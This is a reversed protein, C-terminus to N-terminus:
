AWAREELSRSLHGYYTSLGLETSLDEQDEVQDLDSPGLNGRMRWVLEGEVSSRLRAKEM